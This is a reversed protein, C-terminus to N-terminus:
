LGGLSLGLIKEPLAYLWCEGRAMEEYTIRYRNKTKDFYQHPLFKLIALTDTTSNAFSFKYTHQWLTDTTSGAYQQEYYKETRTQSSKGTRITKTRTKPVQKYIIRTNTTLVETENACYIRFDKGEVPIYGTSIIFLKLLYFSWLYDDSLGYGTLEIGVTRNPHAIKQFVRRLENRKQALKIISDRYRPKFKLWHNIIKQFDDESLDYPFYTLLYLFLETEYMERSALNKKFFQVYQKLTNANVIGARFISDTPQTLLNKIKPFVDDWYYYPRRESFLLALILFNGNPIQIIELDSKGMSRLAGYLSIAYDAYDQYYGGLGVSMWKYEQFTMKALMKHIFVSDKLLLNGYNPDFFDRKINWQKFESKNKLYGYKVWGARVSPIAFYFYVGLYIVCSLLAILALLHIKKSKKFFQWLGIGSLLACVVSVSTNIQLFFKINQFLSNFNAYISVIPVIAVV